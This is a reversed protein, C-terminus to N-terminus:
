KFLIACAPGNRMATATAQAIAAYATGGANLQLCNAQVVSAEYVIAVEVDRESLQWPLFTNNFGVINDPNERGDTAGGSTGPSGATTTVVATGAGGTLSAPTTTVASVDQGGMGGVFEIVYPTTGGANGPGGTVLIDDNNLATALVLAAKVAAATANFAIAGTTTANWTITFTGGAADVAISARENTVGGSQFPGIMGAGAGSVIRAMVVGPQLVKQNVGDVAINPVSAAYITYSETKVDRTSRLYVNRGFPTRLSDKTFGPM